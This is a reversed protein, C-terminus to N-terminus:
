VVLEWIAWFHGLSGGIVFLHWIAHHYTLKRWAYFVVGITYSLGGLLIGILTAQPMLGSAQPITIMGLWGMALYFTVSLWEWRDFFFLKYVLGVAVLGWILYLYFRGSAEPFCYVLFPTHTGAILFYISIHDAKRCLYKWRPERVSHYLTSIFYVFLMSFGFLALSWWHYTDSPASSYYLLLPVGLLGLAFGVGHTWANVREQKLELPTTLYDM